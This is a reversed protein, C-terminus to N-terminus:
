NSFKDKIQIVVKGQPSSTEQYNFADKVKNFEFTQAIHVKLKGSNVLKTLQNLRSTNVDTKQGIATVGYKQVLEEKPQGAMSVLIGGKKLVTFSRDTTEGGVTDFVADYNKISDEFRSTIYDIIEDAGMDKAFNIDDTSITTAVYAGISKAIQIALHGIGGAGGQILIKQGSTLKIHEVIAQLASVGTLPLAAAENFSIGSPKVACNQSNAAVNQAMAGSSGNLIIAQGYIEDGIKFDSVGPGVLIVKGSFDGGMTAPFNLTIMKQMMGSRLKWDFENISAAYNNVLVQGKNLQPIPANENIEIVSADGYTNFQVARM